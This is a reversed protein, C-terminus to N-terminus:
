RHIGSHGGLVGKVAVHGLANDIAPRGGAQHAPNGQMDVWVDGHGFGNNAAVNSPSSPTVNSPSSSVTLMEM